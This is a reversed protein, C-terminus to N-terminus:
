SYEPPYEIEFFILQEFLNQNNSPIIITDAEKLIISYYYDTCHLFVPTFAEALNINKVKDHNNNTSFELKKKLYCKGNCKLEPKVKNICHKKIINNTNLGYYSIIAIKTTPRLFFVFLLIISFSLKLFYSKSRRIYM